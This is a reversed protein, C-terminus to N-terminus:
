RESQTITSFRGSILNRGFRKDAIDDYLNDFPVKEGLKIGYKISSLNGRQGFRLYLLDGRFIFTDPLCPTDEPVLLGTKLFSESNTAFNQRIAVTPHAPSNILRIRVSRFDLTVNGHIAIGYM